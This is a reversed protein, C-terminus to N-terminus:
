VLSNHNCNKWGGEFDADVYFELGRSTDPRYIMGKDRNVLLYRNISKVSREHSLHSDKNFIACQHTEMAIDHCTTGQLYRLM